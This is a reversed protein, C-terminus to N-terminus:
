TNAGCQVYARFTANTAPDNGNGSLLDSSWTNFNM